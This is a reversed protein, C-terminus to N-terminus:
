RRRPAPRTGVLSAFAVEFAAELGRRVGGGDHALCRVMLGAAGPLSTVGALGECSEGAERLAAPTPLVDAPALVALTGLARFPGLPSAESVIAAGDIRGLERIIARGSADVVEFKQALSAFPRGDAKPDHMAFADAVIARAGAALVIRTANAIAAGPFMVLPDPTYALFAGAGVAIEVRQRAPYAGTDHVITAAQTVLHAVAGAEARVRLTLDDGRYVGGSASQLYLTALDPRAVDLRFPRTIHFPYPVLQRALM